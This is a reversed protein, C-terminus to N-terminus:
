DTIVECSRLCQAEFPDLQPEAAHIRLRAAAIRLHHERQTPDCLFRRLIRRARDYRVTKYTRPDIQDIILRRRRLPDAVMYEALKNLSFRPSSRLNDMALDRHLVLITYM